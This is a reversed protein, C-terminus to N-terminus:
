KYLPTTIGDYEENYSNHKKRNRHKTINNEVDNKCNADNDM